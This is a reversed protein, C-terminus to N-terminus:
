LISIETSKFYAMSVEEILFNGTSPDILFDGTSSDKFIKNAKEQTTLYKAINITISLSILNEHINNNPIIIYEPINMEFDGNINYSIKVLFNEQSDDFEYEFNFPITFLTKLGEKRRVLLDMKKIKKKIIPDKVM